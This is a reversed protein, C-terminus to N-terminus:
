SRGLAIDISSISTSNGGLIQFLEQYKVRRDMSDARMGLEELAKIKEEEDTGKIRNYYELFRDNGKGKIRGPNKFVQRYADVIRQYKGTPRSIGTEKRIKTEQYFSMFGKKEAQFNLYQRYSSFGKYTGAKAPIYIV